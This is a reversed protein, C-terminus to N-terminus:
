VLQFEKFRSVSLLGMPSKPDNNALFPSFIVNLKHNMSVENNALFVTFLVNLKHKMCITVSTAAARCSIRELCPIVSRCLPSKFMYGDFMPVM